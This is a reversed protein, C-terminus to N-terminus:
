RANKRHVDQQIRRFERVSTGLALSVWAGLVVPALELRLPMLLALVMFGLGFLYLRGWYLGGLGFFTAGILVAGFPIVTLPDWPHGPPNMRYSLIPLTFLGLLLALRISWLHRTTANLPIRIGEGSLVLYVLMVSMMSGLTVGLAIWGYWPSGSALLYTLLLVLFPAPLLMELLRLPVPLIPLDRSRNLTWALRDILNPSRAQIPEGELYRKLDDALAQASPYRREPEKELCKLCITELDVPVHPHRTRPSVPAESRVRELTELLNAVPFPPQGTLCEYLITGLGYVDTVPGVEHTRGDAQEPAMYSPTGLVSGSVTLARPAASGAAAGDAELFKALGFDSIKVTGEATLLINSPKLDRHIIHHQHACHIALALTRVLEATLHPPLPGAQLRQALSGGAVYELVLYPCGNSEGVGHIQVIHPHQLRAVAEAEIRFRATEEPAIGGGALIMKVAVLRNLRVQLCKYVKGMGGSGLLGLVECDPIRPLSTDPLPPPVAGVLTAAGRQSGNPIRYMAELARIRRGVEEVLEPHDRCLEEATASRGQERLDDWDLLIEEILDNEAM